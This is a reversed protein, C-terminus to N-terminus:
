ANCRPCPFSATSCYNPTVLDVTKTSVNGDYDIHDGGVTWRVHHLVEKEMQHTCVICLYTAKKCQPIASVSIFFMTNTGLTTGYGQALCHIETTNSAQWLLGDSSNSVEKYEALKGTDPNFANGHFVDDPTPKAQANTLNAAHCQSCWPKTM